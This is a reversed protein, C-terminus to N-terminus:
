DSEDSESSSPQQVKFKKKKNLRKDMSKKSKTPKDDACGLKQLLLKKFLTDMEDDDLNKFKKINKSTLDAGAKIIKKTSVTHGIQYPSYEEDSSNARTPTEELCKMSKLLRKGAQSTRKLYRNTKPNLILDTM